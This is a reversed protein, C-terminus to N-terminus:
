PPIATVWLQVRTLRTRVNERDRRALPVFIAFGRRLPRELRSGRVRPDGTVFPKGHQLHRTCFSPCSIGSRTYWRRGCGGCRHRRGRHPQSRHILQWRCSWRPKQTLRSSGTRHRFPPSHAGNFRLGLIALNGISATFDVSGLVGAVGALGPLDRLVVSTKAHALLPIDSTRVTNGQNDRALM